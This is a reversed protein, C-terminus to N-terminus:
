RNYYDYRSKQFFAEAFFKLRSRRSYFAQRTAFCFNEGAKKM